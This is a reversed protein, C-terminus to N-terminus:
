AINCYQGNKEDHSNFIEIRPYKLQNQFTVVINQSFFHRKIAINSTFIARTVRAKLFM